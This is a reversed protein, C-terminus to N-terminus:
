WGDLILWVVLAWILVNSVVTRYLTKRMNKEFDISEFIKEPICVGPIKVKDPLVLINAEYHVIHDSNFYDLPLPAPLTQVM